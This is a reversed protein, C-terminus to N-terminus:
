PSSGTKDSNPEPAGCLGQCMAPARYINASYGQPHPHPHPSYALSVTRIPWLLAQGPGLSCSLGPMPLLAPLGRALADWPANLQAGLSPCSTFKFLDLYYPFSVACTCVHIMSLFLTGPPFPTTTSSVPSSTGSCLAQPPAPSAWPAM